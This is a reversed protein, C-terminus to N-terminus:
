GEHVHGTPIVPTFTTTTTQTTAAIERQLAPLQTWDPTDGPRWRARIYGARDILFEVHAAPPQPPVQPRREYLAYVARIGPADEITVLAVGAKGLAARWSQLQDLRAQSQPLTAFVLLVTSQARLAQLTGADGQPVPLAFDPARPAPAVTVGAILTSTAALAERQAQLFDLLDWRQVPDLAAFSPMVGDSGGATLSWFLDGPRRSAMQPSALNPPMVPLKAALPGDGEGDPGHCSVCHQQYLASGDAISPVAFPEPSVAYSTPTAAVALLEIPRWGLGLFLAAGAVVAWLRRWWIGSILLALGLLALIGTVMAQLRLSPAAVAALSLRYPLPWWPQEHAAPVMTGLAAVIAIVGLGLVAEIAAHRALRRAARDDRMAALQPVLHWRNIAALMLLAAVLALKALLTQGYPTGLLAPLSGVLYWTNVAGSALLAAVCIVGLSSFRRAVVYRDAIDSPDRLLLALPLLAGLWLGAAIVHTVDATLHIAGAWGFDAGAHGQWAVAALSVAALTAAIGDVSRRKGIWAICPLLALLLVVRLVVVHGFQTDILVTRATGSAITAALTDASMNQAVFLLWPPVVLLAMAASIWGLRAFRARLRPSTRGGILAAFGFVGTLSIAGAFHVARAAVLPVDM